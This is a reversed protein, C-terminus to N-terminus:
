NGDVGNFTHLLEDAKALQELADGSIDQAMEIFDGVGIRFYQM